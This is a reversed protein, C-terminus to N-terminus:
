EIIREIERMLQEAKEGSYDAWPFYDQALELLRDKPVGRLYDAYLTIAHAKLPDPLKRYPKHSLM